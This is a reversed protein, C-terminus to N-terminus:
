FKLHFKNSNAHKAEEVSATKKSSSKTTSAQKTYENKKSQFNTFSAVLSIKKKSGKKWLNENIESTMIKKKKQMINM